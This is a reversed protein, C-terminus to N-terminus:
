MARMAAVVAAIGAVVLAGVISRLFWRVRKQSQEVRDFRVILGEGPNANGTLIKCLTDLKQEIKDLQTVEEAM